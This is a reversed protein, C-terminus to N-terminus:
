YKEYDLDGLILSEKTQMVIYNDLYINIKNIESSLNPKIVLRKNTEMNKYIYINIFALILNLKKNKYIFNLVALSFIPKSIVKDSPCHGSM